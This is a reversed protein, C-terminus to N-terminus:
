KIFNILDFELGASVFLTTVVFIVSALLWKWERTKFDRNKFSVMVSISEEVALSYCSFELWYIPTLMLIFFLEPGSLGSGSNTQALASIALGTSYSAYGGFAPGFVPIFELLAIQVNNQFIGVTTAKISYVGTSLSQADASSLPVSSAYVLIVSLIIFVVVFIAARTKTKM